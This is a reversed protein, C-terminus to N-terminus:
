TRQGNASVQARRVVREASATLEQLTRKFPSELDSSAVFQAVLGLGDMASALNESSM